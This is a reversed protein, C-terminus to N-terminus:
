GYIPKRQSANAAVVYVFYPPPNNPHGSKTRMGEGGGLRNRCQVPYLSKFLDILSAELVEVQALSNTAHLCRMESFNAEYYYQVRRELCQSIGIKFVALQDGGYKMQMKKIEEQLIPPFWLIYTQVCFTKAVMLAVNLLQLTSLICSLVASFHHGNVTLKQMAKPFFM